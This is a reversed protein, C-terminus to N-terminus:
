IFIITNFKIPIILKRQSPININADPIQSIQHSIPLQPVQSYSTEQTFQVKDVNQPIRPVNRYQYLENIKPQQLSDVTQIPRSVQTTDNQTQVAQSKNIYQQYDFEPSTSPM